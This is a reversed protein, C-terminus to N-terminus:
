LTGIVCIFDVQCMKKSVISYPSSFMNLFLVNQVKSPTKTIAAMIMLAQALAVSAGVSAGGSAGGGGSAM